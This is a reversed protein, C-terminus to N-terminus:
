SAPARKRRAATLVAAALLAVAAPEPVITYEVTLLPRLAATLSNGSEFRKATFPVSEDTRLLWGFNAPPNAAWAQVDALLGSGTWTYYDSITGILVSASPAAVADGGPATWLINSFSAHLWTADGATAPVGGAENGIPDSSGATWAATVRHLNVAAESTVVALMHLRLSASTIVAGAPLESVDFRLLSRRSPNTALNTRGAFLFEGAGNAVSGAPDEYLTADAAPFMTLTAAAASRMAALGAAFLLAARIRRTLHILTSLMTPMLRRSNLVTVERRFTEQVTSSCSQRAAGSKGLPLLTKGQRQVPHEQYSVGARQTEASGGRSQLPSRVTGGEEGRWVMVM